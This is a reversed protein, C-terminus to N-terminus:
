WWSARQSLSAVVCPINWGLPGFRIRERVMAHFFSLAFTMRRLTVPQANNDFWEDTQNLYNGQLNARM